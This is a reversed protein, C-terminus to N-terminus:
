QEQEPQAATDHEGQEGRAGGAQDDGQGSTRERM